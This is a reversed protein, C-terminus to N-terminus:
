RVGAGTGVPPQAFPIGLFRQTTAAQAGRLTGCPATVEVPKYDRAFAWAPPLSTLMSAAALARGGYVVFGRRSIM